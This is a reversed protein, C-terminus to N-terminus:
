QISIRPAEGESETESEIDIHSGHKQRHERVVVQVVEGLDEKSARRNGRRNYDDISSRRIIEAKKKKEQVLVEDLDDYDFSRNSTKRQLNLDIIM